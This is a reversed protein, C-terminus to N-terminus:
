HADDDVPASGAPTASVASPADGGQCSRRLATLQDQAIGSALQLHSEASACDGSDIRHRAVVLHLEGAREPAVGASLAASAEAAAEAARGSASLLEILTLQAESRFAGGPFQRRYRQLTAIAAASDGRVNHRLRALEYLALEADLAAGGARRELCGEAESTHGIRTMRLCDQTTEEAPAPASTTPRPASEPPSPESDQSAPWQTGAVVRALRQPPQWVEVTGEEVALRPGTPATTVTFKTGVVRFEHGAAEVVFRQEPGQRIADIGVSGHELHVRTEHSSAVTVTAVSDADLRVTSGDPLRSSGSPLAAPTSSPLTEAAITPVPLPRHWESFKVWLGAGTAATAAVAVWWGVRRSWPQRQLRQELADWAQVEDSATGTDLKADLLSALQEETEVLRPPSPEFPIM